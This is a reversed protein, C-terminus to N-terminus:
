SLCFNPIVKNHVFVRLITLFFFFLRVNCCTNIELIWTVADDVSPVKLIVLAHPHILYMWSVVSSCLVYANM